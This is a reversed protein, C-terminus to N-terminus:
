IIFCHDTFHLHFDAAPNRPLPHKRNLHFRVAENRKMGTQAMSSKGMNAVICFLGIFSFHVRM